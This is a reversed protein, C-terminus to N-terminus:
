NLQELIIEKKKNISEYLCDFLFLCWIILNGFVEM